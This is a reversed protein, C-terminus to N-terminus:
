QEASEDPELALVFEGSFAKHSLKCTGRRTDMKVDYGFQKQLKVAETRVDEVSAAQKLVTYDTGNTQRKVLIMSLLM